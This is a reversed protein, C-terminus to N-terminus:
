CSEGAREKWWRHTLDRSGRRLRRGRGIRVDLLTLLFEFGRALLLLARRLLLLLQLGINGRNPLVAALEILLQDIDGSLDAIHFGLDIIGFRPQTREVR